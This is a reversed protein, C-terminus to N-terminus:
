ENYMILDSGESVVLRIVQAKTDFTKQTVSEANDIFIPAMCDYRESFVRIVDMGCLIKKADNMSRYPVGKETTVECMEIIGGDITKDFMKWRAVEFLANIAGEQADISEKVYEGARFELRELRAVEDAFRRVKEDEADIMKLVREREVNVALKDRLPQVKRDYERRIMGIREEADKRKMVLDKTSVTKASENRAESQLDLEEYYMKKFVDSSRVDKEIAGMDVPTVEGLDALAMEAAELKKRLEAQQRKMGDLLGVKGAIVKDIDAIEAKVKVAKDALKGLAVKRAEMFERRKAEAMEEPLAQGCTPCVGEADEDFAKEREESYRQGLSALDLAHETRENKLDKLTDEASRVKRELEGLKARADSVDGKAAAEQERIAKNVNQAANQEDAICKDMRDRLAYIRKWIADIGAKKEENAANIDSIGEDIKSIEARVESIKEDRESLIQGIQRNLDEADVEEPLAKRFAAANATCTALDAKNAKKEAAVRKKFQEMPEGRMEALLDAFREQLGDDASEGVLSLIAKRRTKWDTYQDDIFFLPNTLMKFVGEDIWQHIIADYAKKTATDVGDVFFKQAHGRLVQETEGKPKVWDETVVRRLTRRVGDITLEAEVWHELGHIPEGSEPDIPKLDFNTWDQGQHDKGFLLWTFADFVTSKGAGNEGEIRANGGDPRVEYNGLMGKFNHLELRNIRINM